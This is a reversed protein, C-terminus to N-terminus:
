LLSRYFPFIPYPIFQTQPQQLKLLDQCLLTLKRNQEELAEITKRSDELVKITADIQKLRDEM